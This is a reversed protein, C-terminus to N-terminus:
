LQLRHADTRLTIPKKISSYLSREMIRAIDDSVIVPIHLEKCLAMCEERIPCWALIIREEVNLDLAIGQLIVIDGVKVDEFCLSAIMKKRPNEFTIMMDVKHIAGSVGRFVRAIFPYRGM